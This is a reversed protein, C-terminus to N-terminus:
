GVTLSENESKSVSSPQVYRGNADTFGSPNETGFVSRKYEVNKVLGLAVDKAFQSNNQAAGLQVELTKVKLDREDIEVKKERAELGANREDLKKYENIKAELGTVHNNRSVLQAELNKVQNADAEAQELRKKLVEGVQAPLNKKIIEEFESIM